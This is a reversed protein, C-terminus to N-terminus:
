YIRALQQSLIVQIIAFSVCHYRYVTRAKAQSKLSIEGSEWLVLINEFYLCMIMTTCGRVVSRVMCAPMIHFDM